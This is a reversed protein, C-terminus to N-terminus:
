LGYLLRNLRGLGLPDLDRDRGSAHVLRCHAKVAINARIHGQGRVLPGQHAIRTIALGELMKGQLRLWRALKQIEDRSLRENNMGVDVVFEIDTFIVGETTPIGLARLNRDVKQWFRAPM